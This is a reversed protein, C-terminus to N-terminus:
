RAGPTPLRFRLLTGAPYTGRRRKPNAPQRAELRDAVEAVKLTKEKLHMRPAFPTSTATYRWAQEISFEETGFRERLQRELQTLDPENGFITMQDPDNSYAFRTGGSPDVKWMAEKMRELGVVSGTGFYLTYGSWGRGESADVDFSAAFGAARRVKDLFIRHLIRAAEKGARGRAENWSDDGFLNNLAPEIAPDAIFRAIFPLPVYILVECKQFGLIRSSLRLGHGTYGFPDLFAFTPVLGSGLPIADLMEGLVKDFSGRTVEVHVNPPVDVAALEGRLYAVRRADLEIFDYFLELPEMNARARHSLYADLMLLPSGPEGGTYRGPGAFGDILNLRRNQRAMIPFWAHLYGVLLRHKAHTHEEYDWLVDDRGAM